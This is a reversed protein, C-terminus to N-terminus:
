PSASITSPCGFGSLYKKLQQMTRKDHALPMYMVNGEWIFYTPVDFDFANSRLLDILGDTVYNGAILTMSPVIRAGAYCRQKLEVTAADDIQFYRVVVSQKRAARTDLGVGLIVVHGIGAAIQREV